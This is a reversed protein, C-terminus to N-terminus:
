QGGEGVVRDVVVAYSGENEAAVPAGLGQLDGPTPTPKGSRSVRAGIVIREFASLNLGQRMAMADNLEVEVPLDRVQKRVVALPMPPGEAARAFIFLADDPAAKERVSDALSVKVRIRKGPERAAAPASAEPLASLGQVEAIYQGIQRAEESEPPFQAKLKEWYEV